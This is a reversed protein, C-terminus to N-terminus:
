KMYILLGATGTKMRSIPGDIRLSGSVPITLITGKAASGKEGFELRDITGDLTVLVQEISGSYNTSQSSSIVNSWENKYQAM